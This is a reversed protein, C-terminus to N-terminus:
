SSRLHPATTRVSGGSIVATLRAAAQPEGEVGLAAAVRAVEAAEVTAGAPFHYGTSNTPLAPLGEGAEFVYGGFAPILGTSRDSDTAGASRTRSAVEM